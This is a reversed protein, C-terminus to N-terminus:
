VILYGILWLPYDKLVESVDIGISNICIAFNSKCTRCNCAECINCRGNIFPLVWWRGTRKVAVMEGYLRKQTQYQFVDTIDKGHEMILHERSVKGGCWFCKRSSKIEDNLLIYLTRDLIKDIFKKWYEEDPKQCVLCNNCPKELKPMESLKSKGILRM